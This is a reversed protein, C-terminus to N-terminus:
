RRGDKTGEGDCKMASHSEEQTPRPRIWYHWLTLGFVSAMFLCACGCGFAVWLIAELADM